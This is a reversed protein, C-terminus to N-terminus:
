ISVKIMKLRCNLFCIFKYSSSCAAAQIRTAKIVANKSDDIKFVVRICGANSAAQPKNIAM